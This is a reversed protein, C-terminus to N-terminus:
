TSVFLKKLKERSDDPRSRPLLWGTHKLSLRLGSVFYRAVHLFVLIQQEIPDQACPEVRYELHQVSM